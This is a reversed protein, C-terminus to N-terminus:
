RQLSLVSDGCQGDNSCCDAQPVIWSEPEVDVAKRSKRCQVWPLKLCAPIRSLPVQHLTRTNVHERLILAQRKPKESHSSSAFGEDAGQQKCRQSDQVSFHNGQFFLARMLSTLYRYQTSFGEAEFLWDQQPKPNLIQLAREPYQDQDYCKRSLHRAWLHVLWEM